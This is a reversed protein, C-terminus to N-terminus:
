EMRVEDLGVLIPNFRITSSLADSAGLQRQSNESSLGSNFYPELAEWENMMIELEQTPISKLRFRLLANGLSKTQTPINVGERIHKLEVPKTLDSVISDMLYINQFITAPFQNMLVSKYGALSLLLSAKQASQWELEPSIFESGLKSELNREKWLNKIFATKVNDSNESEPTVSRDFLLAVDLNNRTGILSCPSVTGFISGTEQMVISQLSQQCKPLLLTEVSADLIPGTEINFLKKTKTHMLESNNAQSQSDCVGLVESRKLVIDSKAFDFSEDTQFMFNPFMRNFRSQLNFDRTFSQTWENEFLPLSEWPLDFLEPSVMIIVKKKPTDTSTSEDVTESADDVIEPPHIISLIEECDLLQSLHTKFKKLLKNFLDNLLSDNKDSQLMSFFGNTAQSSNVSRKAPISNLTQALIVMEKLASELEECIPIIQCGYRMEGEKSVAAVAILNDQQKIVSFVVSSEDIVNKQCTEQDVLFALSRALKLSGDLQINPRFFASIMLAYANKKVSDKMLTSFELEEEEGGNENDLVNILEGICKQMSFNWESIQSSSFRCICDCKCCKSDLRLSSLAEVGLNWLKSSQAFLISKALREELEKEISVFEEPKADTAEEDNDDDDDTKEETEIKPRKQDKFTHKVSLLVDAYCSEVETVSFRDYLEFSLRRSEELQDLIDEPFVQDKSSQLGIDYRAKKCKNMSCLIQCKNLICKHLFPKGGDRAHNTAEDAFRFAEDCIAECAEILPTFQLKEGSSVLWRLPANKMTKSKISLRYNRLAILHRDSIHALFKSYGCRLRTGLTDIMSFSNWSKNCDSWEKLSAFQALAMESFVRIRSTSATHKFHSKRLCVSKDDSQLDSLSVFLLSIDMEKELVPLSVFTELLLCFSALLTKNPGMLKGIEVMSDFVNLIDNWIDFWSGDRISIEKCCTCLLKVKNSLIGMKGEWCELHSVTSDLSYEDVQNLIGDILKVGRKFQKQAIFVEVLCDTLSLAGLPPLIIQSQILSSCTELADQLYGNILQCRAQLLLSEITMDQDNLLTAHEHALLALSQAEDIFGLELCRLSSKLWYSRAGLVIDTDLNPKELPFIEEPVNKEMKRRDDAILRLRELLNRRITTESVLSPIKRMSNLASEIKNAEIKITCENLSLSTELPELTVGGAESFLSTKKMLFILLKEICCIAGASPLLGNKKLAEFLKGLDALIVPFDNQISSFKFAEDEFMPVTLEKLISCEEDSLDTDAKGIVSQPSDFNADHLSVFEEYIKFAISNTIDFGIWEEFSEAFQFEVPNQSELFAEFSLKGRESPPLQAYMKFLTYKESISLLKAWFRFCGYNILSLIISSESTTNLIELSQYCLRLFIVLDYLSLAAGKDKSITQVSQDPFLHRLFNQADSLQLGNILMRENIKKESASTLMESTLILNMGNHVSKLADSKPMGFSHYFNALKLHVYAKLTSSNSKSLALDLLKKQKDKTQSEALSLLISIQESPSSSNTTPTFVSSKNIKNGFLVRAKQFATKFNAPLLSLAEDCALLAERWQQTDQLCDLLLLYMNALLGFPVESNDAFGKLHDLLLLLEPKITKRQKVTSRESIKWFLGCCDVLSTISPEVISYKCAIRIHALASRKLRDQTEFAQGVFSVSIASAWVCHSLSLWRYVGPPMQQKKEVFEELCKALEQAM